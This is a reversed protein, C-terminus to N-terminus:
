NLLLNFIQSLLFISLLVIIFKSLYNGSNKPITITDSEKENVGDTMHKAQDTHEDTEEIIDPKISSTYMSVIGNKNGNKGVRFLVTDKKEENKKIKYYLDYNNSEDSDDNSKNLKLAEIPEWKLDKIEGIKIESDEGKETFAYHLLNKSNIINIDSNLRYYKINEDEKFYEYNCGDIFTDRFYLYDEEYDELYAIYATGNICYPYVPTVEFAQSTFAYLQILLVLLTFYFRANKM